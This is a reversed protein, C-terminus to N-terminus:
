EVFTISITAFDATKQLEELAKERCEKRKHKEQKKHEEQQEKQVAQKETKNKPRM